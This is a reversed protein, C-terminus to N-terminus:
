ISQNFFHGYMTKAPPYFLHYLYNLSIVLSQNELILGRQKRFNYLIDKLKFFALKLALKIHSTYAISM